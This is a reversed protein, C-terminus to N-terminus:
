NGRPQLISLDPQGLIGECYPQSQQFALYRQLQPFKPLLNYPLELQSMYDLMPVLLADCLTFQEAVFFNQDGISDSVWQLVREAEPLAAKAVDLRVQGDRGKPIFFELMINGMTPKSVYLAIISAQAITTAKLKPAQPYISPGAKADLYAAIASSEPLVFEGDILVPLKKFPHLNTHQDSFPRIAEGFPALTVEHPLQKFQCILRMSRLFSSFSPGYLKLTEM